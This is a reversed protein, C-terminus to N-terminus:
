AIAAAFRAYLDGSLPTKLRWTVAMPREGEHSVYEAPGLFWFSRDTVQPRAFLLISQEMAVHRQYRQGTPSSGTTTSQSEWHILERSIAYDRYRTTPSFDGSTKDLTFALLDAGLRKAYYVGERWPPTKANTGEGVAALIEIRTYRSHIRLPVEPLAEEQVHDPADRLAQLLEDLEALVQPHSWILAVADRLSSEKTLAQDGVSAALMRLLRRTTGDPLTADPHAETALKRYATLRQRDDIHQLRGLARRLLAENPGPPAVTLGAAERLDSWGRNNAYIDSLELGTEALYDVLSVASRHKALTRLEAVRAPWTTPIADRLSSLVVRQAVKDLEMHCGAPLFPFGEEVAKELDRRTGGLLARYRQDFRFERRHMGVFDLVTCVTKGEMLRLGRGLQQLFLTASDTPRLFLLTDVAPVDVGENFLDVSFVVKIEGNALGRLAGRREDDSSTGSVAVSPVGLKRFQEAMYRAHEVTVCFGLCRIAALDDVHKQLQDYVLRVWSEDGVYTETLANLDYGQGRRWPIESLDIGDHIGYYVFPALRHQEIADWLRLEAAIRDGFWHLVPLNDSREPTATLGLLQQPQLHNLIREYSQAAAHHFEDIIVVDFHDAPLREPGHSDLIQVSAFVHEYEEPKQGGLWLDGFTHDRIAHRFTNLSQQLIEKRHAIFLLRARGLRKRLRVYDVAAMVTKGTGTASVLLNRHWGSQRSVEVKELLREQFPKLHIEIPSLTTQWRDGRQREVALAARFQEEVFPVFDDNQWYTEFVMRVKQVVDPNRAASVRVNWEMGAIQASHTLNSSGIYATSLASHRHFLWAKAHLRATTLDYSVRVEAGLDTLQKLAELETSGTYTTTLVRLPKGQDCHKKLASMLPRLGSRRIFAMLLDIADASEIETLVQSGVNPEGRANTLLTTDVLPILPRRPFRATGALDLTGIATLAEGPMAPRETHSDARPLREQLVDLLTRAVEVGVKVRDAEPVSDLAREVQRALLRAFRDSAEAPRVGQREVLMEDVQALKSLLSETVIDEYLGATLDDPM